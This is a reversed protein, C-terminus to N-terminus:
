GVKGNTQTVITMNRFLKKYKELTSAYVEDLKGQVAGKAINIYPKNNTFDKREDTTFTAVLAGKNLTEANWSRPHQVSFSNDPSSFTVYGKLEQNHKKIYIGLLVLLVILAVVLLKWRKNLFQKM